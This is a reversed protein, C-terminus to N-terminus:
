FNLQVVNSTTISGAPGNADLCIYTLYVTIGAGVPNTRAPIVHVGEGAGSNAMPGVNLILLPNVLLPCGAFTGSIQQIGVVLFVPSGGLGSLVTTQWDIAPNTPVTDRPPITPTFGGTGACGTGFTSATSVVIGNDGRKYGGPDGFYDHSADGTGDYVISTGQARDVIMDNNRWIGAGVAVSERLLNAGGVQLFDRILASSTFDVFTWFLDSDQYLSLAFQNNDIVASGLGFLFSGESDTFLDNATGPGTARWHVHLYSAPAITRGFPFAYYFRDGIPGPNNLCIAWLSLDVTSATPNHLEILEFGDDAGIPDYLVESIVVQATAFASFNLALCTSFLQKWM